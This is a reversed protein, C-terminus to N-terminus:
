EHTGYGAYERGEIRDLRLHAQKASAEVAALKTAHETNIKRQERQETKIDDIGSKIYGLETLMQGNQRGESKDDKTKNRSFTLVGIVGGIITCLLAISVYEVM